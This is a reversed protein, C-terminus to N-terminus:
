FIKYYFYFFLYCFIDKKYQIAKLKIILQNNYNIQFIKLKIYIYRTKETAKNAPM